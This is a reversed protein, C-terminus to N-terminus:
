PGARCKRFPPVGSPPRYLYEDKDQRVKELRQLGGCEIRIVGTPDGSGQLGWGPCRRGRCDDALGSRPYSHGGRLARAQARNEPDGPAMVEKFGPAPPVSRVERLIEGARRTFDDAPRFVDARIAIITVGQRIMAPTGMGEDEVTDSGVLVQGLFEVAMMLAFGKHGGFPLLFGGDQVATPNTTPYGDKDIVTGAPLEENRMKYLNMKSNAMATTAYDFVMAPEDGGPFGMAIPNSSLLGRSGGYPAAVKSGLLSYGAGCIISVVGAAAAMEAYEGLRGIHESRVLGVVAVDHEKAKRVAVDTAFKAAVHGFTRNGDVLATNPTERVISPSATADLKGDQVAKVYMALHFVGHTDVGRVNASVLADAMRSANEASAGAADLIRRVVDHLDRESVTPM